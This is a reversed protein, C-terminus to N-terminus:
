AFVCLAGLFSPPPIMSCNIENSMSFLGPASIRTVPNNDARPYLMSLKVTARVSSGSSERILM